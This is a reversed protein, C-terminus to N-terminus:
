QLVSGSGSGGRDDGGSIGRIAAMLDDVPDAIGNKLEKAYQDAVARARALSGVYAEVVKTQKNRVGYCDYTFEVPAQTIVLEYVGNDFIM